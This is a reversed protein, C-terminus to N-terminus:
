EKICRVSAGMGWNFTTPDGGAEQRNWTVSDEDIVLIQSSVGWFANGTHIYAKEGYETLTGTAPDRYGYFPIFFAEGQDQITANASNPGFFVGNVSNGATGAARYTRSFSTLVEDTQDNGVWQSIMKYGEPCPMKEAPWGADAPTGAGNVGPWTDTDSYGVNGHFQYYKGAADSATAFTRFADVNYRAWQIGGILAVNPDNPTATELKLKMTNLDVTLKYYGGTTIEWKLDNTAASWNITLPVLYLNNEAGDPVVAEDETGAAFYATPYADILPLKFVGSPFARELEYIGSGTATETFPWAGAEWAGAVSGGLFLQERASQTITITVPTVGDIGDANVTITAARDHPYPNGDVRYILYEGSRSVSVWEHPDTYAPALAPNDAPLTTATVAWPINATVTLTDANDSANTRRTGNADITVAQSSVTLSVGDQTVAITQDPLGTASFTVTASRVTGGNPGATVTLDATATGSAPSVTLWSDTSTTTWAVNAIVQAAQGEGGGAPFNLTAPAVTLSPTTGPQTVTVTKPEVGDASVTIIATRQTPNNNAGVTVNVTANGNGSTPSLTVFTESATGTWTVNATVALDYTGGTQNVAIATKDVSLSPTVASEEDEKCAGAFVLAFTMATAFTFTYLKRKM